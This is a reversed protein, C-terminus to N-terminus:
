KSETLSQHSAMKKEFSINTVGSTTLIFGSVNGQINRKFSLSSFHRKNGTFLYPLRPELVVSELRPHTIILKRNKLLISYSIDLAESYYDGTFESLNNAWSANTDFAILRSIQDNVRVSMSKPSSKTDFEVIVNGWTIMQFSNKSIPVLASENGPGRFYRLTDNAIHIKRTTHANVDWYDGEFAALQKKSLKKSDIKVKQNTVPTLFDELYLESAATASSGNYAGDNGMVVVSLNYEPYRILKSAYGGAVEIHYLKKSGRFNWFRHGGTYLATNSEKVPSNDVLSLSDFKEIMQRDGITPNGLEKAWLCMDGITTFVDSLITHKYNFTANVFNSGQQFYGQAKNAIVNGQIDFTSNNMGLPKFIEKSIFDEYSTKAIQAILDELLMFGADSYLQVSGSQPTYKAQNKIQTYAQEKTFTDESKWGALAKAVEDNNLGATHHILQEIQVPHRFSLEPMYTRIDDKLSIQGRKELLLLAYVTFEKAIDGIHFKTQPTVPIQHELNALGFGKAYVIEGDNMIGVAIGPKDQTDWKSFIADIQAPAIQRKKVEQSFSSACILFAIIAFISKM